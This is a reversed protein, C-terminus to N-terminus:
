ARPLAAVAHGRGASGRRGVPEVRGFVDREQAAQAVQDLAPDRRGLGGAGDLRRGGRGVTRRRALAVVGHPGGAGAEEVGRPAEVRGEEVGLERAQRHEEVRGGEVLLHDRRQEDLDPVAPAVAREGDRLLVQEGLAELARRAGGQLRELAGVPREHEDRADVALLVDDAHEAGPQPEGRAARADHDEARHRGRLGDGLRHGAHRRAEDPERRADGGRRRAGQQPRVAPGAGARGPHEAAPRGPRQARGDGRRAPEDGEPGRGFPLRAHALPQV